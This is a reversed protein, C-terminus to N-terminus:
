RSERKKRCTGGRGSGVQRRAKSLKEHFKPNGARTETLTHIGNSTESSVLPRLNYPARIHFCFSPVFFSFRLMRTSQSGTADWPLATDMAFFLASSAGGSGRGGAGWHATPRLQVLPLWPSPRSRQTSRPQASPPITSHNMPSIRRLSSATGERSLVSPVLSQQGCSGGPVRSAAAKSGVGSTWLLRSLGWLLEQRWPPLRRREEM